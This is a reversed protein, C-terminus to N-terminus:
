VPVKTAEFFARMKAEDKVGPAAEVGSATDVGWPHTAAIADGVNEATLGGSLLFPIKSRRQAILSWDFTQGTGGREGAVSADLLHLDTHFRDLDRLDAAHGIRAAKIIRAGTRQSVANCFSPGEDGHLQVYTLGLTDVMGAIEDLHQNVFVGVREVKRQLSWSIGGVVAPDAYRKSQPWLIFGIAWAGLSVALEADEGRTIGCIKVKTV